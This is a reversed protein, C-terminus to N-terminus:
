VLVSDGVKFETVGEGIEHVIGAGEHGLTMPTTWGM